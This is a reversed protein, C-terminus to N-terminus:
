HEYLRQTIKGNIKMLRVQSVAACRIVMCENRRPKRERRDRIAAVVQEFNMRGISHLGAGQTGDSYEKELKLALKKIGKETM